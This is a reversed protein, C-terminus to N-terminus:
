PIPPSNRISLATSSTFVLLFFLSLAASIWILPRDFGYKNILAYYAQAEFLYPLIFYAPVTVLGRVAEHFQDELTEGEFPIGYAFSWLGQVQPQVARMLGSEALKPEYRELIATYIIGQTRFRQMLCSTDYCLYGIVAPISVQLLTSNSFSLGGLSVSSAEGSGVLFEFVAALLFMIIVQRAIADSIKNWSALTVDKFSKIQDANNDDFAASVLDDVSKPPM